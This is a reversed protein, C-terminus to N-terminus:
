EQEKDWVIWNDPFDKTTVGAEVAEDPTGIVVANIFKMNETSYSQGDSGNIYETGELYRAVDLGPAGDNFGNEGPLAPSMYMHTGYGKAIAAVNLYGTVIGANYYGRDPAFNSEGDTRHEDALLRESFILITVTGESTIQGYSDGIIEMQEDADKVAVMFWDAFGRSTVALSAMHLMSELDEDSPAGSADTVFGGTLDNDPWEATVTRWVGQEEFWKPFLTADFDVTEDDSPDVPDEEEPETADVDETSDVVDEPEDGTGLLAEEVAKLFADSTVTANAIIDVGETSDKGVLLPILTEIADGGIAPTEHEADVKIDAILGDELTVEVSIDGGYGKAVGTRTETEAFVFVSSLLSLMLALTVILSLKRNM